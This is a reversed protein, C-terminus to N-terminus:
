QRDAGREKFLSIWVYGCRQHRDDAPLGPPRRGRRGAAVGRPQAPRVVVRGGGGGGGGRDHQVAVETRGKRLWSLVALAEPARRKQLLWRPSEPLFLLGVILVVAPVIPALFGAYFPWQQPVSIVSALVVGVMVMLQFLSTMAGRSEKPAVESMYMTLTYPVLGVGLGLVFRGAGLSYVTRSVSMLILGVIVVVCGTLMCPKRGIRDTLHPAIAMCSFGAGVQLMGAMLGLATAWQASQVDGEGSLCNQLGDLRKDFGGQWCFIELFDPKNSTGSWNANDMGFFMAGVAALACVKLVRSNM